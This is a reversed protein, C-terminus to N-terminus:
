RLSALRRKVNELGIGGKEEEPKKVSGHDMNEYIFVLKQHDVAIEM